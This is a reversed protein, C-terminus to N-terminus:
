LVCEPAPLIRGDQTPLLAGTAVPPDGRQEKLLNVHFV